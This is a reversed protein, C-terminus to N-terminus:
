RKAKGKTEPTQLCSAVQPNILVCGKPAKKRAKNLTVLTTVPATETWAFALGTINARKDKGFKELQVQWNPWDTAPSQTQKTQVRQSVTKLWAQNSAEHLRNFYFDCLLFVLLACALVALRIHQHHKGAHICWGLCLDLKGFWSNWTPAHTAWRNLTHLEHAALHCLTPADNAHQHNQVSIVRPRAGMHQVDLLCQTHWDQHTHSFVRLPNDELRVWAGNRPSACNESDKLNLVVVTDSFSFSTLASASGQFEDWSFTQDILWTGDRHKLLLVELAHGSEGQILWLDHELPGM